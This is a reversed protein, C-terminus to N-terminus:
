FNQKRRVREQDRLQYGLANDYYVAPGCNDSLKVTGTVVGIAGWAWLHRAAVPKCDDPETFSRPAGYKGSMAALAAELSGGLVLGVECIRDDCFMAYANRVDFPLEVQPHNCGVAPAITQVGAARLVATTVFEGGNRECAIRAEQETAGFRFGVVESPFEPPSNLVNKVGEATGHFLSVSTGGPGLDA